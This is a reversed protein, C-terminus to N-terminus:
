NRVAVKFGSLWKIAKEQDNFIKTPTSPQNFSLFFNALIKSFTNNTIIANAVATKGAEKAFYERVERSHNPMNNIDTLVPYISGEAFSVADEIVKRASAVDLLVNNPKYEIHLYTGKNEIRIWGNEFFRNEM